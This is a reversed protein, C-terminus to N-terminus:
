HHGHYAAWKRKGDRHDKRGAGSGRRAGGGHPWSYAVDGLSRLGVVREPITERCVVDRVDKGGSLLNTAVCWFNGEGHAVTWVVPVGAFRRAIARCGRSLIGSRIDSLLPAVRPERCRGRHQDVVVRFGLDSSCVDSSWDRSFRTHRRRSSFFFFFCCKNALDGSYM